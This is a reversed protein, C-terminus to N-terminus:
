FFYHYHDYRVDFVKGIRNTALDLTVGHSRLASLNKPSSSYISFIKGIFAEFHNFCKMESIVDNVALELRHNLCHWIICRPYKSQIQVAVGSKSGIMASAGDSAFAMLHLKLYEDSFGHKALLDLLSNVITKASQDPLEMLDLFM